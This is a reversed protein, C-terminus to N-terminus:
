NGAVGTEPRVVAKELEGWTYGHREIDGWTPYWEELEGWTLYWYVYRILLHCPLIDEIIRSLRDFGDPVGPVNPFRVEVEGPVATEDVRANIGCGSLTDNLASQTFSDGGIRLLAALAARRAPTMEAVPRRTLLGEIADLGAGEATTLLMERQIRELEAEVGDLIKGEAALEGTQWRGEMDYVGLPRLLERLYREYSM